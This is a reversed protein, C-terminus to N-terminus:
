PTKPLSFKCVHCNRLSTSCSHWPTIGEDDSILCIIDGSKNLNTEFFDVSNRYHILTHINNLIGEDSDCVLVDYPKAAQDDFSPSSVENEEANM